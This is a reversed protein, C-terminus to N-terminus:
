MNETEQMPQLTDDFFSPLFVLPNLLQNNKLETLIVM